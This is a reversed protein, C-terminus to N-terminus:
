VLNVPEDGLKLEGWEVRVKMQLIDDLDTKCRLLSSLHFQWAVDWVVHSRWLGWCLQRVSRVRLGQWATALVESQWLAPARRDM